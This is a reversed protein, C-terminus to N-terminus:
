MVGVLSSWSPRARATAHPVRGSAVVRGPLAPSVAAARSSSARQRSPPPSPPRGGGRGGGSGLHRLCMEAVGLRALSPCVFVAGHRLASGRRIRARAGRRSPRASDRQSATLSRSQTPRAGPSLLLLPSSSSAGGEGVVSVGCRGRMAVVGRWLADSGHGMRVHAGRRSPRAAERQSATLGRGQTPRASSSSSSSSFPLPSPPGGEGVVSVVGGCRGLRWVAGRRMAGTAWACTRAVTPPVPPMAAHLPSAEATPLQGAPVPPSAAEEERWGV